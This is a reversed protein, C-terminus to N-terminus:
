HWRKLLYLFSNRRKFKLAGVFDMKLHKQLLADVQASELFSFFLPFTNEIKKHAPISFKEGKVEM